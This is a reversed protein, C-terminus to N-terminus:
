EDLIKGIVAHLIFHSIYVYQSIALYRRMQFYCVDIYNAM